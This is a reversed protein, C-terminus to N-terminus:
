DGGNWRNFRYTAVKFKEYGRRNSQTVGIRVLAHIIYEKNLVVSAHHPVLSGEFKYVLIDGPLPEEDIETCYEKIKNLYMPIACNAAIDVPYHPIDIHEILGINEMSQLILLGCDTGAGKIRAESHYPTCQWSLLEECFDQREKKEQDTM